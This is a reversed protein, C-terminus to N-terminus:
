DIRVRGTGVVTAELRRGSEMRVGVRSGMPANRTAIGRLTVRVNQDNWEVAVPQNATVVM